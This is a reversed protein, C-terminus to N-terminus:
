ALQPLFFGLLAPIVSMPRLFLKIFHCVSIPTDKPLVVANCGFAAFNGIRNAGPNVGDQRWMNQFNNVLASVLHTTMLLFFGKVPKLTYHPYRALYIFHKIKGFNCVM